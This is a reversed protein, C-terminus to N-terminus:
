RFGLRDSCFSSGVVSLQIRGTWEEGPKLNVPKEIVAGDVCLMHKYEEDGLDVMSKSKKEWPNWVAACVLFLPTVLILSIVMSCCVISLKGVDPLGEKRIIFTRKREHDLVAIINPSSLYLRDM